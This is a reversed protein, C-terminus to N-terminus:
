FCAVYEEITTGIAFAMTGVFIFIAGFGALLDWPFPTLNFALIIGIIGGIFLLLTGVTYVGALFCNLASKGSPDVMNVPDDGAYTYRNASNLDGLSGGVPDQQTWRGLSPDYYRTGFTYLTTASDLSGGAFTFPNNLGNQERQNRIV